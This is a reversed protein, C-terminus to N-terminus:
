NRKETQIYNIFTICAHMHRIMMQKRGHNRYFLFSENELDNISQSVILSFCFTVRIQRTFCCNAYIFVVNASDM